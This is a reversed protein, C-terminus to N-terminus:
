CSCAEREEPPLALPQTIAYRTPDDLNALFGFLERVGEGTLSSTLYAMRIDGVALEDLRSQVAERETDPILDSKTAALVFVCSPSTEKVTKIWQRIPGEKLNASCVIAAVALQYYIPGMARFKEQGATDWIQLCVQRRFDNPVRVSRQAPVITSQQDPNFSENQFRDLLSTKGVAYDGVVIV